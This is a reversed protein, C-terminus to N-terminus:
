GRGRTRAAAVLRDALLSRVVDGAIDAAPNKRDAAPPFQLNVVVVYAALPAAMADIARGDQQPTGPPYVAIVVAFVKGDPPKAGPRDLSVAEALSVGM